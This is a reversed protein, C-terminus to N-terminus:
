TLIERAARRGSQIAGHVTGIHGVSTAEGAFFLKRDIPESLLRQAGVGNVPLYAYAGCSFRDRRWDHLYSTELQALIESVPLNFVRTLSAIARDLISEGVLPSLASQLKRDGAEGAELNDFSPAGASFHRAVKLRGSRPRLADAQAGGAWGVLLPARVPVQTWWTPFALGPFHFFGAERFSVESAENDWRKVEEWFRERFLLNIKIVNGMLLTRIASRKRDPLEPVFRIGGETASKQLLSLPLTIVVQSATFRTQSGTSSGGDGSDSDDLPKCNVELRDAEWRIEEVTTHLHFTAGYSEAEARLADMLSAYGDVFRFTRDGDISDAAETAVVLGRIGVQDISAAHFGEVYRTVMAKARRTGEDEPLEDLFKKLSQDVPSSKMKDILSEINKWFERSKSLEGDEFYWHRESVEYLELNAAHALQWLEPSKGHIFEAGYEIPVPQHPDRHTFVRGGIRGRAEIVIVERGAKCLDRAAALGAAGAGIV